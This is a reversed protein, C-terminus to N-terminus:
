FFLIISVYQLEIVEKLKGYYDVDFENFTL